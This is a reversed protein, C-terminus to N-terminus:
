MRFVRYLGVGGGGGHGHFIVVTTTTATTTTTTSTSTSSGSGLVIVTGTMFPHFMCHYAFTGPTTFTQTFSSGPELTGSNFSGGNATVTHAVADNNTWAITDNVGIVVKVTSPNFSFDQISVTPDTSYDSYTSYSYASYATSGLQLATSFLVALVFGTCLWAAQKKM